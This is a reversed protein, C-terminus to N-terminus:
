SHEPPVLPELASILPGVDNQVIGWIVSMDIQGYDHVLRHRLGNIRHWEIEPHADKLGASIKGAAEGIVQLGHLTAAQLKIDAAFVTADAGDNFSRVRRAWLLM